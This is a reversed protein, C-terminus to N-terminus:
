KTVPPTAKINREKQRQYSGWGYAGIIGALATIIAAIGESPRGIYALITGSTIASLAIIFGLISGLYSNRIDASIVKRELDQRHKAQNEWQSIIREAAGPLIQNYHDLIQPHPLPGQFSSAEIKTLSQNNRPVISQQHGKKGM